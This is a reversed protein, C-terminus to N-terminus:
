AALVAKPAPTAEVKVQDRGNHKAGYLAGDARRLLDDLDSGAEGVAIGISVGVRLDPYDPHAIRSVSDRVSEAFRAALGPGTEPLLCAFEEGGLRGFVASRPLMPAAAHCFATLVADGISHGYRDNIAKFHDLDLLLLAAPRAALCAKARVVFARRNAIGTLADTEAAQRQEREAREKTLAMLVFAIAVSYLTGVFCLVALWPSDSLPALTPPPFLMALPIRVWYVAAYTGLLVLAPYRSILPESRGQWITWAGLACYLGATTSALIIRAAVSAYFAPVLCAAIWVLGGAVAWGLYTRRGEFARVGSWILGYAGIMVANGLGISVWDPIAGRLGLLCSAGSGVLHAIGWIALARERRTQSWSLLFLVGVMFTVAVTTLFLTPVDLRM